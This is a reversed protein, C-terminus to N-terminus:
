HFILDNRYPDIYFSYIYLIVNFPLFVIPNHFPVTNKFITKKTYFYLNLYSCTLFIYNSLISINLMFTITKKVM